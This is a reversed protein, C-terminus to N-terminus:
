DLFLLALLVKGLLHNLVMYILLNVLDDVVVFFRRLHLTVLHTHDLLVFHNLLLDLLLLQPMILLSCM